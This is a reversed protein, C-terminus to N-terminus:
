EGQKGQNYRYERPTMGTIRRFQQTFHSCNFFGCEGSIQSISREPSLLLSSALAIRKRLIYNGPTYGTLKKFKYEFTRLSCFSMKALEECRLDTTFNDNIFKLAAGLNYADSNKQTQVTPTACRLMTLMMKLFRVISFLMNAPSSTTLEHNLTEACALVKPLDTEPDLHLIPTPSQAQPPTAGPSFFLNFFPLENGDILPFPLQRSDYIINLLALTETHDYAHQVGPQIFLIDGKRVTASKGNLIHLGEGATIIAVETTDHDHFCLQDNNGVPINKLVMPFKKHINGMEDVFRALPYLGDYSM